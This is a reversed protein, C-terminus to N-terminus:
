KALLNFMRDILSEGRWQHLVARSVHEVFYAWTFNAIFSHIEKVSGIFGSTHGHAAM